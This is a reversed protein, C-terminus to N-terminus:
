QNEITYTHWVYVVLRLCDSHSLYHSFSYFKCCLCSNLISCNWDSSVFCHWRVVIYPRNQPVFHKLGRNCHWCVLYPLNVFPICQVLFVHVGPMVVKTLPHESHPLACSHTDLLGILYSELTTWILWFLDVYRGFMWLLVPIMCSVAHLEGYFAAGPQMYTCNMWSFLLWLSLFVQMSCWIPVYGTMRGLMKEPLAVDWSECFMLWCLMHVPSKSTRIYITFQILVTRFHNTYNVLVLLIWQLHM